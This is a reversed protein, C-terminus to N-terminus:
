NNTTLKGKPMTPNSMVSHSDSHLLNSPASLHISLIEKRTSSNSIGQQHNNNQKKGAQHQPSRVFSLGMESDVAPLAIKDGPQLETVKVWGAGEILSQHALTRGHRNRILYPHNGTTNRGEGGCDARTPDHITFFLVPGM